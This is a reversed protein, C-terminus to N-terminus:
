SGGGNNNNNSSSNGPSEVVSSGLSPKITICRLRDNASFAVRDFNVYKVDSGSTISENDVQVLLRSPEVQLVTCTYFNGRNDWNVTVSQKPWAGFKATEIRTRPVDTEFTQDSVYQIRYTEKERDWLEIVQAAYWFGDDEFQVRVAKGRGLPIYSLHGSQMNDNDVVLNSVSSSSSKSEKKKKHHKKSEKKSREKKLKKLKKRNVEGDNMTTNNKDHGGSEETLDIIDNSTTTPKIERSTDDWGEVAITIEEVKEKKSRKSSSPDSETKIKSSKKGSNDSTTNDHSSSHKSKKKDQHHHSSSKKSTEKNLATDRTSITTTSSTANNNNTSNAVAAADNTALSIADNVNKVLVNTGPKLRKTYYYNNNDFFMPLLSKCSLICANIKGGTVVANRKLLDVHEVHDKMQKLSENMELLLGKLIKRSTAIKEDLEKIQPGDVIPIMKDDRFGNKKRGYRYIFRFHAPSLNALKLSGHNCQIVNNEYSIQPCSAELKYETDIGVSLLKKLVEESTTQSVGLLRSLKRITLKDTPESNMNSSPLNQNPQPIFSSSINTVENRLQMVDVNQGIQANALNKYEPVAEAVLIPLKQWERGFLDGENRQIQLFEAVRVMTTTEREDDGISALFTARIWSLMEPPVPFEKHLPINSTLTTSSNTPPQQQQEELLIPNDNPASTQQEVVDESTKTTPIVVLTKSAEAVVPSTITITSNNPSDNNNNDTSIIKTNLLDLSQRRSILSPADFRSIMNPNDSPTSSRRGQLRQQQQESRLTTEICNKCRRTNYPRSLQNNTFHALPLVKHCQSCLQGGNDPKNDENYTRDRSYHQQQHDLSRSRTRTRESPRRRGGGQRREDSASRSRHRHRHENSVSRHHHHHHRHDHPPSPYRRSNHHHYRTTTEDREESTAAPSTDRYHSDGRIDTNHINPSNGAIGPHHEPPPKYEAVSNAITEIVSPDVGKSPEGWDRREPIKFVTTFLFFLHKCYRKTRVFDPCSCTCYNTTVKVNYINLSAGRIIFEFANPASRKSIVLVINEQQGRQLRTEEM